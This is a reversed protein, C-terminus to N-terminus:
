AGPRSGPQGASGESLVREAGRRGRDQGRGPRRRRRSASPRACRSRRRRPASPPAPRSSRGAAPRHHPLGPRQGAARGRAASSSGSRPSIRKLLPTMAADSGRRNLRPRPPEGAPAATRRDTRRSAAPALPEHCTRKPQRLPARRCDPTRMSEVSRGRRASRRRRLHAFVKTEDLNEMFQNVDDVSRGGGHREAIIARSRAQGRASRPSGCM